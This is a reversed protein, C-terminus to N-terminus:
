RSLPPVISLALLQASPIELCPQRSAQHRDFRKWTWELVTRIKRHRKGSANREAIKLRKFSTGLAYHM